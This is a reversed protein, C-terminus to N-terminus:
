LALWRLFAERNIPWLLLHRSAVESRCHNCINRGGLCYPVGEGCHPCSAAPNRGPESCLIGLERCLQLATGHEGELDEQAVCPEDQDLLGVLFELNARMACDGDGCAPVCATAWPHKPSTRAIRGSGS